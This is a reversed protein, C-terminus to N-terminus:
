EARNLSRILERVLAEVKENTVKEGNRILVDEMQVITSELLDEYRVSDPVIKEDPTTLFFPKTEKLGIDVGFITNPSDTKVEKVLGNALLELDKGHPAKGKNDKAFDERASNLRMMFTDVNAKTEEDGKNDATVVKARELSRSIINSDSRIDSLEGSVKADETIIGNQLNLMKRQDKKELRQFDRDAWLNMESFKDPRIAAKKQLTDLSLLNTQIPPGKAAAELGAIEASNYFGTFLRDAPIADTTGLLEVNSLDEEFFKKKQEAKGAKFRGVDNNYRRQTEDRVDVDKIKKIQREASLRDEGFRAFLDDARRQGEGRVSSAKTMQRARFLDDKNFGKENKAVYEKALLDKGQSIMSNTVGMHMGSVANQKEVKKRQGSWEFNEAMNDIVKNIKDKDAKLQEPLHWNKAADDQATIISNEGVEEVYRERETNSHRLIRGGFVNFRKQFMRDFAQKQEPNHLGEKIADGRVRLSETYNGVFDNKIVDEGRQTVVGDNKNYYLDNISRTLKSEADIIAIDDAKKKEEQVFRNVQNVLGSAAGFNKQRSAEALNLSSGGGFAELSPTSTINPNLNAGRIPAQEIQDPQFRPVRPM